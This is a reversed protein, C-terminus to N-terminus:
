FVRMDLDAGCFFHAPARREFLTLWSHIFLSHSHSQWMRKLWVRLSYLLSHQLSVLWNFLSRFLVLVIVFFTLALLSFSSLALSHFFTQYAAIHHVSMGLSDVSCSSSTFVSALCPSELHMGDQMMSFGFLMLGFIGILVFKAIFRLM